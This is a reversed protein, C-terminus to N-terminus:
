YKRGHAQEERQEKWDAYGSLLIRMGCCASKLIRQEKFRQRYWNRNTDARM